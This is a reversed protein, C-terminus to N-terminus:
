GKLKVFGICTACFRSDRLTLADYFQCKLTSHYHYRADEYTFGKCQANQDCEYQCRQPDPLSLTKTFLIKGKLLKAPIPAYANVRLFRKAKERLLQRKFAASLDRWEAKEDYGLCVVNNYDQLWSYIVADPVANLHNLDFPYVEERLSPKLYAWKFLYGNYLVQRKLFSFSQAQELGDYYLDNKLFLPYASNGLAYGDHLLSDEVLVLTNAKLKNEIAPPHLVANRAVALAFGNRAQIHALNAQNVKITTLGLFVTLCLGFLVMGKKNQIKQRAFSELGFGAILSYFLLTLSLHWPMAMAWGIPLVLFLLAAGWLFLLRKKYFKVSVWVAALFYLTILIKSMPTFIIERWLAQPQSLLGRFSNSQFLGFFQSGLEFAANWKEKSLQISKLPHSLTPWALTLYLLLSLTVATLLALVKLTQKRFLADGTGLFFLYYLALVPGLFIAPEKFTVAFCYFFLSAALFSSGRAKQEDQCFRAFCYFSLLTFFIYAFEFHLVILRSLILAPHMLYFGFALYAGLWFGPFLLEYIKVVLFGSFALFSLNVILMAQTNHWGLIPTLLQYLLFHGSPRFFPISFIDLMQPHLYARFFDGWSLFMQNATYIM